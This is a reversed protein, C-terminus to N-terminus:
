PHDEYVATNRASLLNIGIDLVGPFIPPLSNIISDGLYRIWCSTRWELKKTPKMLLDRFLDDESIWDTQM